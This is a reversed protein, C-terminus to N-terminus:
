TTFAPPSSARTALSRTTSSRSTRSSSAPTPALAEWRRGPAASCAFSPHRLPSRARHLDHRTEWHEAFYLRRIEAAVAKSVTM